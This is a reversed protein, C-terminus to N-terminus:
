FHAELMLYVQNASEVPNMGLMQLAERDSDLDYPKFNYNSGGAYDYSYYQWGLRMFAKAYRSLAEGVPLDYILYLEYADGRTALKSMYLDDHGPTFAVWYRSGHNYEAGLKLGISDIDYRIGTYVSYGNESGTNPGSQGMAMAAYDNFMGNGNPDTRSWGGALFYNLQGTKATYVGTAHYMQGLDKQEGYGGQEQPMGAGYRVFDSSFAPYNYLNYVRFLQLNLFREGKDLVDWSFGAFDTDDVPFANPDKDWLLGNEFGRGYCFRIRGEGLAEIGWDYAYGLTLGDFPYDMYAVPTAMRKDNNMRLHAPPGDTTPRRGISFWIPLGGIETWNIYARDVYLASDNPTRTTNGDFIPYGDALDNPTSQMGWAKYMALRGRFELNETAQVRMNLRLRNTFLTDNEQDGKSIGGFIPMGTTADMGTMGLPTGAAFVNSARYFDARSRFEGSLEFRSALDWSESREDLSDVTDVYESVVEKQKAMEAKLEDLQRSLEEIRQELEAQTASSSGALALSPLALTGALAIISLSKLM